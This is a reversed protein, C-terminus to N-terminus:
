VAEMFDEMLGLLVRTNNKEKLEKINAERLKKSENALKWDEEKLRKRM